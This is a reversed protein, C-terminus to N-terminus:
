KREVLNLSREVNIPRVKGQTDETGIGLAEELAEISFGRLINTGDIRIIPVGGAGLEQYVAIGKADHEVDYRTFPIQRRTLFKELARCYPCWSTVFIEVTHQKAEIRQVLPSGVQRHVQNSAAPEPREFSQANASSAVLSLITWFPILFRPM